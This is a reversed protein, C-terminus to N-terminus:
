EKEKEKKIERFLIRDEEWHESARLPTQERRIAQFIVGLTMEPGYGGFEGM